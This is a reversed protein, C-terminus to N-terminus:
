IVLSVQKQARKLQVYTDGDSEILADLAEDDLSEFHKYLAYLFKAGKASKAKLVRYLKEGERVEDGEQIVKPSGDERIRLYITKM